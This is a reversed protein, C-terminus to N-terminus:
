AKKGKSVKLKIKSGAVLKAGPKAKQSIVSGKKVKASFVRTVKGVSCHARRIAGKAARLKKGKLKPVVCLANFTATVSRAASMTVTCTGNGLCAGSWGAFRSSASATATLTVPTGYGFAHECSSGCSIGALNSTVMGAGSGAKILTLAKDSEFRATAARNATMALTCKGTGSCAGSWAVFSSGASSVPTLTVATGYKFAHACTSGCGIGAPSSSVTGTGSGTTALTLAKDSEFRASASRDGSMTATCTGTGSCAGSWGVFSSGPSATATLKVPIAAFPASCTSGCNIGSPSSTVSGSGSGTKTVTLTSGSYRVLAFTMKSGNWSSGAAVLKGDPQLALAYADDKDSGIGTMLKGSSGFSPDLSGNLNYRAFAFDENSGNASTGAAVLKGDPQLALAVVGHTSSGIATAVKGTGNFSTDLSGNPNYRALGFNWDSGGHTIGAAVLKGDPELVVANADDYNGIATTVKGGSGFGADLSGNANYRVLAFLDQSYGGTTTYSRGVAVLKGDPQLALAAAVDEGAGIATTVKGTGNFSSDLSGNPNYRTLAFDENLGNFSRGAVVIKGDPQLALGYAEDNASGIPTIVKGTGNFSTDLSGNPNYRALAFDVNSGNNAYGAAVLKGDPQVAVANASDWSPGIATAVKGTGNFSADLSGNPNYRALAFDTDYGNHSSGAVVLKGDPQRVLGYAYADWVGVATMVKGGTGFSPDLSGPTGQAAPVLLVAFLCALLLLRRAARSPSAKSSSM